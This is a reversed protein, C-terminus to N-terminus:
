KQPPTRPGPPTPQSVMLTTYDEIYFRCNQVSNSEVPRAGNSNHSSIGTIQAMTLLRTKNPMTMGGKIVSGKIIPIYVGVIPNIVM